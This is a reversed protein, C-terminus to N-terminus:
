NKEIRLGFDRLNSLRDERMAQQVHIKYEGKLPFFVNSRYDFECLYVGGSGKGIWKGNPMALQFEVTDNFVTSDPAVIDIFVWLNSYSYQELNRTSLILKYYQTTDSINFAFTAISDKHWGSADAHYYNEYVRSSDCAAFQVILLLILIKYIITKM